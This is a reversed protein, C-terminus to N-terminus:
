EAQRRRYSAVAERTSCTTSCHLRSRNRSSDVFVDECDGANCVGFREMGHEILVTALGMATIAGLWCILNGQAPEFHLHPEGNHVSVRPIAGYDNLIKNIRDSATAHDPSEFVSRLSERLRHVKGLEAPEPLTAVDEWMDRYENIFAEFQAPEGITDEGTQLTNVLDVALAM